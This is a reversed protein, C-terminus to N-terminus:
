KRIDWHRSWKVFCSLVPAKKGIGTWVPRKQMCGAMLDLVTLPMERDFPLAGVKMKLCTFGAEIGRQMAALMADANDMWILHHIPVGEEGRCFPTDWRPQGPRLAALLACELGFRIPSPAATPLGQLTEAERCWYNLEDETPEPLLGPM